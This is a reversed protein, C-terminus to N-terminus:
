QWEKKIRERELKKVFIQLYIFLAFKERKKKNRNIIWNRECESEKGCRCAQTPTYKRHTTYFFIIIIIINYIARVQYIYIALMYLIACIYINFNKIFAIEKM